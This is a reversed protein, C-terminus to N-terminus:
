KIEDKSMNECTAGFPTRLSEVCPNFAIVECLRRCADFTFVLDYVSLFFIM